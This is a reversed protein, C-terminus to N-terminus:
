EQNVHHNEVFVIKAEINDAKIEKSSMDLHLNEGQIISRNFELLFPKLTKMKKNTLNYDLSKTSFKLGDEHFINVGRDMYIDDNQYIAKKALVRYGTEDNLDIEDMALYNQYKVTKVAFMEQAAVNEKIDYLYFNQFEVEKDGKASKAAQSLPHINFISFLLVLLSFFLLYEIRIAM